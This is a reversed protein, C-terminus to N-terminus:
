PPYAPAGTSYVDIEPHGAGIEEIQLEHAEFQAAPASFKANREVTIEHEGPSLLGLSLRYKHPAAGAYLIVQQQPKGDLSLDVVAAESGRKAWDAGPSSM